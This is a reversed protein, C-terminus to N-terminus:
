TLGHLRGRRQVAGHAGVEVVERDLPRERRVREARVAAIEVAVQHDERRGPHRVEGRDARALDGCVQGRQPGAVAVVRRQRRRRRGARRRRHAPQVAEGDALAQGRVVRGALDLRRGQWAPQRLREVHALDFPQEGGHAPGVPRERQPVLRQQLEQVPRARADGFGHAGGDVVQGEVISM